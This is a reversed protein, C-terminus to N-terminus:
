NPRGQEAAQHLFELEDVIKLFESSVLALSGRKRRRQHQRIFIEDHADDKPMAFGLSRELGGFFFAPMVAPREKILKVVRDTDQLL